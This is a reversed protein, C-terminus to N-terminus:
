VTQFHPPCIIAEIQFFPLFIGNLTKVRLTFHFQFVGEWILQRRWYLLTQSWRSFSGLELTAPWHRWIDVWNASEPFFGEHKCNIIHQFLISGIKMGIESSHNISVLIFSVLCYRDLTVSFKLFSKLIGWYSIILHLLFSVNWEVKLVATVVELESSSIVLGFCRRATAFSLAPLWLRLISVPPCEVGLSGSCRPIQWYQLEFSTSFSICKRKDQLLYSVILFDKTSSIILFYGSKLEKFSWLLATKRKLLM